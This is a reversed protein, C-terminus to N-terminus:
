PEKQLVEHKSEAGLETVYRVAINKDDFTLEAFGFRLFRERGYRYFFEREDMGYQFTVDRPQQADPAWVPVGGHGILRPYAINEKAEYIACRHEHGWFWARVLGENLAPRLRELMKGSGAEYSSFPQHHTLLIGAKGRAASRMQYVWSAQEGHLDGDDYASDLGLIQWHENELSFYSSNEQNEFRGDALLYDFYEHGGSYMDHNANLSWSSTQAKSDITWVPWPDLFRKKYEGKQGTYYVDGLHIVHCRRGERLAQELSSRMATAVQLARPIGSGWDGVLLVRDRNDIRYARAAREPFDHKGRIWRKIKAVAGWTLFRTDRQGFKTLWRGGLRKRGELFDIADQSLELNSIPVTQGALRKAGEPEYALGEDEFFEDYTSQILATVPDRPIWVPGAGAGSLDEAEGAEYKEIEGELEDLDGATGGSTDAREKAGADDEELLRREIRTEELLRAVAKKVTPPNLLEEIM